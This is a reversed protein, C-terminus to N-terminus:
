PLLGKLRAVVEKANDDSSRGTTTVVLDAQLYNAEREGLLSEIRELLDVDNTTKGENNFLMPRDNRRKVREFIESPVTKLYLLVGREKVLHLNATVTLTGGGLAVVVSKRGFSLEDLLRREVQRFHGEGFKSFIDPIPLGERAEIEDDLDVFDMELIKAVKPGITSKGSGM